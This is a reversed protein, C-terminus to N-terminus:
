KPATLSVKEIEDAKVTVKVADKIADDIWRDLEEGRKGANEKGYFVVAYEGPATKMEFEGNENTEASHYFSRNKRKL